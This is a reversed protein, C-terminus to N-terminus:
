DSQETESPEFLDGDVQKKFIGRRILEAIIRNFTSQSMGLRARVVKHIGTPWPQEPMESRVQEILEETIAARKQEKSAEVKNSSIPLLKMGSVDNTQMRHMDRQGIYEKWDDLNWKEVEELFENSVETKLFRTWQSVSNGCSIFHSYLERRFTIGKLVRKITQKPKRYAPTHKSFATAAIIGRLGKIEQVLASLISDEGLSAPAADITAIRSVADMPKYFRGEAAAQIFTALKDKNTELSLIDRQEMIARQNSVDFPLRQGEWAMIVLPLGIAHRIGLEYMVNPNPDDDPEMGGLDIVVMPDFALHTRIEDNIAGPQEEAAALVPRYGADIVGQKIVVEYWGKYWRRETADQGYPMVIFCNKELAELTKKPSAIDEEAHKSSNKEM